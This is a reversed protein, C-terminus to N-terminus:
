EAANETLEGKLERLKELLTVAEDDSADNVLDQLIDKATRTNETSWTGIENVLAQHISPVERLNPTTVVNLIQLGDPTADVACFDLGLAQAAAIALTRMGPTVAGYPNWYAKIPAMVGTDVLKRVIEETHEKSVGDPATEEAARIFFADNAVLETMCTAGVAVGNAVYIRIRNSQVFQPELARTNGDAIADQLEAQNTVVRTRIGSARATIFGREPNVGMLNCLNLYQSEETLASCGIVNIGSEALKDFLAKRDRYTQVKRPDNLIAQITRNEWKFKDTPKAGYCVLAGCFGQPPVLGHEFGLEEALLTGSEQSSRSYWVFTTM